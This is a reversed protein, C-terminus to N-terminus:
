LYFPSIDTEKRFVFQEAIEEYLQPELRMLSYINKYQRINEMRTIKWIKNNQSLEINLLIPRMNVSDVTWNGLITATIQDELSSASLVTFTPDKSNELELFIEWEPSRRVSESFYSFIVEGDLESLYFSNQTTVRTLLESFSPRDVETVMHDLIELLEPLSYFNEAEWDDAIRSFDSEDLLPIPAGLGTRDSKESILEFHPEGERIRLFYSHEYQTKGAQSFLWAEEPIPQYTTSFSVVVKVLGNNVTGLESLQQVSKILIDQPSQSLESPSRTLEIHQAQLYQKVAAVAADELDTQVQDSEPFRYIRYVKESQDWNAYDVDFMRSIASGPLWNYGPVWVQDDIIQPSERIRLPYGNRIVNLDGVRFTLGMEDQQEVTITQTAKDWIYTGGLAEVIPMVPVYGAFEDPQASITAVEEDNVIIQHAETTKENTLPHRDVGLQAQDIFKTCGSIIPGTTAIMLALCTMGKHPKM